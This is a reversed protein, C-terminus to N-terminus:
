EKEFITKRNQMRYSKGSLQILQCKYLIRDLLATALVEDDLSKAWQAPSKNTTIIFSVTEYLQNIFVFFRNGDERDLPLTMVDDIIILGANMLRKYERAAGPTLDKMRLTYLIDNMNRFYAKYGKQIADYALGASIFTKGTGSPGNLMLNYCNDLWSLERLQNLQMPSIGSSFGFDYGALDHDLPLKAMKMRLLQQKRNREEIEFAFLRHILEEYCPSDKQATEMLSSLNSGIGPLRLLTAQKKILHIYQSM